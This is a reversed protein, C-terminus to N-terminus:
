AAATNSAPPRTCCVQLQQEATLIDKVLVGKASAAAAAAATAAAASDAGWQGFGPALMLGAADGPQGSGDDEDDDSSDATVGRHMSLLGAGGAALARRSRSGALLSSV